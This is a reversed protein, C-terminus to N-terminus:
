PWNMGRKNTWFDGKEKADEKAANAENVRPLTQTRLTAIREGQRKLVLPREDDLTVALGDPDDALSLTLDKRNLLYAKGTKPDVIRVIQEGKVVIEVTPDDTEIVFERNGESLRVVGAALASSVLLLATAVAAKTRPAWRKRVKDVTFPTLAEGVVAASQYREDPRKAMMKAVIKALERPTDTRVETLLRPADTSHRKLKEPAAGEPFPPQNALLHYFTCGLSYIDSRCDALRADRAQEPAIYDASGMVAGASTLHAKLRGPEDTSSSVPEDSFRALGFDLVKVQGSPTLMLNHPKIDRHVMGREHAHQLGQAAQRIIECAQSVPLPGKEMMYDALNQGAVYEMVLFHLSGAHDADYGAVINPHDLKAATRVEQEFRPLFGSQNVLEANLLKLAVPRAMHRHEALYVAGMGGQGLLRILRYRPHRALEAPEPGHDSLTTDPRPVFTDRTRLAQAQRLQGVFSDDPMDELAASCADCYALHEELCAVEDAALRGQSLKRLTETKPHATTDLEMVPM